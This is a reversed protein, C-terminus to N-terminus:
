AIEENTMLWDLIEKFQSIDKVEEMVSAPVPESYITIINEALDEFDCGFRALDKGREMIEVFGARTIDSDGADKRAKYDASQDYHRKTFKHFEGNIRKIDFVRIENLEGCAERILGAIAHKFFLDYGAVCCAKEKTTKIISGLLLDLGMSQFLRQNNDPNSDSILAFREQAIDTIWQTRTIEDEVVIAKATKVFDDLSIEDMGDFDNTHTFGMEIVAQLMIAFRVKGKVCLESVKASYAMARTIHTAVPAWIEPMKDGTAPKCYSIAKIAKANIRKVFEEGLTILEQQTKFMSDEFVAYEHQCIKAMRRAMSKPLKIKKAKVKAIFSNVKADVTQNDIADEMLHNRIPVDKGKTNDIGDSNVMGGFYDIIEQYKGYIIIAENNNILAERRICACTDVIIRLVGFLTQFVVNHSATYDDYTMPTITELKHKLEKVKREAFDIDNICIINELDVPLTSPDEKRVTLMPYYTWDFKSEDVFTCNFGGKLSDPHRFGLGEIIKLDGLFETILVGSQLRAITEMVDDLDMGDCINHLVYSLDDSRCAIIDRQKQILMPYTREGLSNVMEPECNDIWQVSEYEFMDRVEPLDIPKFYLRLTGLLTQKLVKDDFLIEAQRLARMYGLAQLKIQDVHPKSDVLLEAGEKDGVHILLKSVSMTEVANIMTKLNMILAEAVGDFIIAQSLSMSVGEGHSYFVMSQFPNLANPAYVAKLNSGAGLIKILGNFKSEDDKYLQKCILYNGKGELLKDFMPALGQGQYAKGWYSLDDAALGLLRNVFECSVLTTGDVTVNSIYFDGIGLNIGGYSFRKSKLKLNSVALSRSAIKNANRMVCYIEDKFWDDGSVGHILQVSGEDNLTYMHGCKIATKLMKPSHSIKCLLKGRRHPRMHLTKSIYPMRSVPYIKESTSEVITPIPNGNEWVLRLILDGLDDAIIETHKNTVFTLKRTLQNGNMIKGLDHKNIKRAKFCMVKNSM